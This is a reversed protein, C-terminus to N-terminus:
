IFIDDSFTIITRYKRRIYYYIFGKRFISICGKLKFFDNFIIALKESKLYSISSINTNVCELYM